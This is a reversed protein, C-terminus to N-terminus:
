HLWRVSLKLLVIVILYLHFHRLKLQFGSLQLCSDTVPFLGYEPSTLLDASALQNETMLGINQKRNFQLLYYSSQPSSSWLSDDSCEADEEQGVSSHLKGLPSQTLFSLHSLFILPPALGKIKLFYSCNGQFQLVFCTQRNTISGCHQSRTEIFVSQSGTPPVSQKRISSGLLNSLPVTIRVTPHFAPLGSASLCSFVVWVDQWPLMAMMLM